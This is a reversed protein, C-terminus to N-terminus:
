DQCIEPLPKADIFVNEMVYPIAFPIITGSSHILSSPNRVSLLKDKWLWMLNEEKHLNAAFWIYVAPDWLFIRWFNFNDISKSKVIKIVTWWSIVETWLLIFTLKLFHLFSCANRTKKQIILSFWTFHLFLDDLSTLNEVRWKWNELRQIHSQQIQIPSSIVNTRDRVKELQIGNNVAQLFPQIIYVGYNNLALLIGWRNEKNQKWIKSFPM